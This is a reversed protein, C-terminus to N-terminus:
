NRGLFRTYDAPLRFVMEGNEVVGATMIAVSQERFASIIDEMEAESPSYYNEPPWEAFDDRLITLPRECNRNCGYLSKDYGCISCNVRAM